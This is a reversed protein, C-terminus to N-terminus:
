KSGEKILAGSIKGALIMALGFVAIALFQLFQFLLWAEQQAYHMYDLSYELFSFKIILYYYFWDLVPEFYFSGLQVGMMVLFALALLLFISKRGKKLFIVVSLVCLVGYAFILFLALYVVLPDFTVTSTFM